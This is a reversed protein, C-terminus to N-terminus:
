RSIGAAAVFSLRWHFVFCQSKAPLTIVGHKATQMKRNPLVRWVAKSRNQAGTIEAFPGASTQMGFGPPRGDRDPM